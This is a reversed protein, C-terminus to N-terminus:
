SERVHDAGVVVGVAEPGGESPHLVALLLGEREACLILGLGNRQHVAEANGFGDHRQNLSTM